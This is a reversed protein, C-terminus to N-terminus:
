GCGVKECSKAAHWGSQQREQGTAAREYCEKARNLDGVTQRCCHPLSPNGNATASTAHPFSHTVLLLQLKAGEAITCVGIGLRGQGLQVWTLQLRCSLGCGAPPSLLYVEAWM